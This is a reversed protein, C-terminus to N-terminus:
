SPNQISFRGYDIPRATMSTIELKPGAHYTIEQLQTHLEKEPPLGSAISHPFTSQLRLAKWALIGEELLDNEQFTEGELAEKFWELLIKHSEEWVIKLPPQETIFARQYAAELIKTHLFHLHLGDGLSLKELYARLTLSAENWQIRCGPFELPISPSHPTTNM